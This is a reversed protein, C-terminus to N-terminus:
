ERLRNPGFAEPCGEEKEKEERERKRKGPGAEEHLGAPRGIGRGLV